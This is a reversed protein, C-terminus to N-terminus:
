KLCSNWWRPHKEKNRKLEFLDDPTHWTERRFNPCYKDPGRGTVERGYGEKKALAATLTKVNKSLRYNSDTLTFITNTLSANSNLMEELVGKSKVAVGTHDDFCGELYEVTSPTPRGAPPEKEGDAGGLAAGGFKEAEKGGCPYPHDEEHRSQKLAQVVKGM